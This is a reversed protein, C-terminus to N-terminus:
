QSSSELPTPVAEQEIEDLIFNKFLQVRKSNKLEEPYTLYCVHGPSRLHPFIDVLEKQTKAMYSPLISVGVSHCAAQLVGYYNNVSLTPQMKTQVLQQIWPMVPESQPISPSYAILRHQVIDSLTCIPAHADLYAQTAYIGLRINMIPRRILDAQVPLRMRIAIDAERMPLDLVRETLILDVSLGPHANMFSDLRPALWITGFGVTTTIRLEGQVDTNTEKIRVHAAQVHKDMTSTVDFLKEGQETLILGRAHRHFLPAQLETELAKIQRSVASQSLNLTQSSHTLSGANAVAHFIRLKDWDM